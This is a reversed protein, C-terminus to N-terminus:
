SLWTKMSSSDNICCLFQRHNQEPQVTWASEQKPNPSARTGKPTVQRRDAAILILPLWRVLSWRSASSRLRLGLATVCVDDVSCCYSNLSEKRFRRARKKNRIKEGAGRHIWSLAFASTDDCPTISRHLRPCMLKGKTADSHSLGTLVGGDRPNTKLLPSLCLVSTSSSLHCHLATGLSM